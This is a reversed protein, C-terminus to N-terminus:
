RGRPTAHGPRGRSLISTQDPYPLTPTLGAYRTESLGSQRIAARYRRRRSNDFVVIGGPALHPVSRALCAPRARGDVVILDFLGGVEDITAVYSSFDLGKNGSKHSPTHPHLDAVAPVVHSTVTSHAALEPAMVESFGVHHETTHVEDARTALWLTSAGSGYEFVRIPRPRATLWDDVADIASYTWWPVGLEAIALSDHVRTLSVLWHRWRDSREPLDEPLVGVRTLLTGAGHAVVAYAHKTRHPLTELMVVLM